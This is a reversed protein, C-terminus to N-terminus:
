EFAGTTDFSDSGDGFDSDETGLISDLSNANEMVDDASMEEYEDEEEEDDDDEELMADEIEIMKFRGVSCPELGWGLMVAGEIEIKKNGWQAPDDEISDKGADAVETITGWYGKEDNQTLSTGESFTSGSVSRGFGFRSVMMWLEDRRKGIISWRGRLVTSSGLGHLTSFTNNAFLEVAMVQMNNGPKLAEDKKEEATPEYEDQVYRNELKDWREFKKKRKPLPFASLYFRKGVLDKKRFLETLDDEDDALKANYDGLIQRLEFRGKSQPRFIPHEFFEPHTKPYMFKGTKIKGKPVSLYIDITGKKNKPQSSSSEAQDYAEILGSSSSDERLTDEDSMMQRQELVPNETLSDESQVAVKGVLITDAEDVGGKEGGKVDEDAYVSFPKQKKEPRDAALILKGDVFDWTGKWVFSEKERKSLEMELEEELSNEEDAGDSFQLAACQQFTHDDKLKIFIETQKKAMPTLLDMGNMDSKKKKPYTTFEKMPLFGRLEWITNPDTPASRPPFFGRGRQNDREFPLGGEDLSTLRWVGRLARPDVDGISYADATGFIITHLISLAIGIRLM